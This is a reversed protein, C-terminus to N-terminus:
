CGGSPCTTYGNIIISDAGQVEAGANTLAGWAAWSTFHFTTPNYFSGGLDGPWYSKVRKSWGYNALGSSYGSQPAAGVNDFCIINGTANPQDYVWISKALCSTDHLFVYEGGITPTGAPATQPGQSRSAALAAIQDATVWNVTTSTTGDANQNVVTESFLGPHDQNSGDDQSGDCAALGVMAMVAM